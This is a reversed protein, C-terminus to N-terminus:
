HKVMFQTFKEHTYKKQQMAVGDSKQVTSFTVFQMLLLEIYNFNFQNTKNSNEIRRM